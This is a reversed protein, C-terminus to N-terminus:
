EGREIQAQTNWSCRWHLRLCLPVFTEWDQRPYHLTDDLTFLAEDAM